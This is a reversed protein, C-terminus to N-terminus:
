SRFRPPGQALFPVPEAPRPASELNPPMGPASWPVVGSGCSSPACAALADLLYCDLQVEDHSHGLHVLEGHDDLHELPHVQAAQWGALLTLALLVPGLRRM